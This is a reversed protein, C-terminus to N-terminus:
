RTCKSTVLKVLGGEVAAALLGFGATSPAPLTAAFTLPLARASEWSCVVVNITSKRGIKRHVGGDVTSKGAQPNLDFAQCGPFCRFLHKM